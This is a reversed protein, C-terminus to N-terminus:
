LGNNLKKLLNNGNCHKLWGAYSNFSQENYNKSIM